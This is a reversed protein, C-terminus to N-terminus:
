SDDEDEDEDEDEVAGWDPLDRRRQVSGDYGYIERERRAVEEALDIDEDDSVLVIPEDDSVVVARAGRSRSPGARRPQEDEDDSIVIPAHGGRGRRPRPPDIVLAEGDSDEDEVHSLPNPVRPPLGHDDEDDIFSGGYEEDESGGEEDTSMGGILRAHLLHAAAGAHAHAHPHVDDDGVETGEHSGYEGPFYIPGVDDDDDDSWEADLFAGWPHFGHGADDDDDDDGDMGHGPYERGCSSCVGDWIEHNCEVCRYIGGDEPDHMGILELVDALAPAHGPGARRPPPFINQWPDAPAPVPADAAPVPLNALGSKVLAAVMDKVAWVETPREIVIARCHPCTKKRLTAPLPNAQDGNAPPSRFWAVLCDYCASHGCPALAYPKHMLDLCIQCTLSNQLTSVLTAHDAILKNKASLQQRLEAVEKGKSILRNHCDREPVTSPGASPQRPPAFPARTTTTAVSSPKYPETVGRSGSAVREEDSIDVPQVIPQKRKKKRRKKKDKDKWKKDATVTVSKARKVEREPSSTEESDSLVRKKSHAVPSAIRLPSSM